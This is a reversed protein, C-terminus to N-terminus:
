PWRRWLRFDANYVEYDWGTVSVNTNFLDNPYSPNNIDDQAYVNGDITLGSGDITVNDSGRDTPRSAYIAISGWANSAGTFSNVTVDTCGTLQM